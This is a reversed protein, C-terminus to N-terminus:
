RLIFSRVLARISRVYDTGPSYVAGGACPGLILSIQPVVGSADVNRQFVDAYGGLSAVGEQIRAGGSDNLGVIPARVRLAQDYIKCITEANTESLSGGYVTFDQSVAFVTRGYVTGHGAVVGDGAVHPDDAMGFDHCRHVKWRDLQRFSNPDFLLEIRELATLSGRGHQQDIRRQRQQQQQQLQQPLQKSDALTINNQQREIMMDTRFQKKLQSPDNSFDLLSSSTSTATHQTSSFNRRWLLSSSPGRRHVLMM